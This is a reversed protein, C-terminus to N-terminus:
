NLFLKRLFDRGSPPDCPPFLPAIEGKMALNCSQQPKADLGPAIGVETPIALLYAFM